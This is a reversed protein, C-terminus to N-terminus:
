QHWFVCPTSKGRSSGISEMFEVYEMEWNQAADRAGYMAKLLRGCKGEENDEIPLKVYVLRRAEAHVYARRVDIFELKFGNKRQNGHYGIGEMMAMSLLIKKAELQPTAAFLDERKDHKIEQAVLRSRYDPNVDDGKNIDVWRTGIPEKGTNDWCERIDVQEYVNHKNIDKMEEERARKVLKANLEKGSLDDWFQGAEQNDDMFAKRGDRSIIPIDRSLITGM